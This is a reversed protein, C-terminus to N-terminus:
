FHANIFKYLENLDENLISVEIFKIPIQMESFVIKKKLSELYGVRENADDQSVARKVKRIEEIEKELESEIVTSKKSFQLDQKNCAIVVPTHNSLVTLNNLIEYIIEAAEGFKEKEKSDIVVVIAKASELAEQLREKFHYHGPVDIVSIKKTIASDQGIASGPIKVEMPQPTENVNISTVTTRVEKTILHYFLSTKGSHVAGCIVLQNQQKKQKRNTASSSVQQNKSQQASSKSKNTSGGALFSLLQILILAGGFLLITHSVYLESSKELQLTSAIQNGVYEHTLNVLQDYYEM